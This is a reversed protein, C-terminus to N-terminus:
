EPVRYARASHVVDTDDPQVYLAWGGADSRQAFGVGWTYSGRNGIAAASSQLKGEESTEAYGRVEGGGLLDAVFCARGGAEEVLAQGVTVLGYQGQSRLVFRGAFAYLVSGTLGDIPTQGSTPPVRYIGQLTVNAPVTLNGDIRFRGPPVEVIGGGAEGAENLLQQFVATCDTKGDGIAGAEVVDRRQAVVVTSTTVLILFTLWHTQTEKM